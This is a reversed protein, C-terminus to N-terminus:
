AKKQEGRYKVIHLKAVKRVGKKVRYCGRCNKSQHRALLTRAGTLATVTYNPVNPDISCLICLQVFTINCLNRSKEVSTNKTSTTQYRRNTHVFASSKQKETM